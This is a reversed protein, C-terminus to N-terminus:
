EEETEEEEEEETEEEGWIDEQMKVKQDITMADFEEKTMTAMPDVYDCWLSFSEAVDAYSPKKM